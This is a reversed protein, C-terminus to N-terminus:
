TKVTINRATNGNSDMNQDACNINQMYRKIVSISFSLALIENSLIMPFIEQISLVFIVDGKRKSVLVSYM